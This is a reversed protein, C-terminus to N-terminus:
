LFSNSPRQRALLVDCLLKMNHVDKQQAAIHFVTNGQDNIKFLLNDINENVYTKYFVIGLLQSILIVVTAYIFSNNCYCLNDDYHEM